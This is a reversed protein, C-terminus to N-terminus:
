IRFFSNRSKVKAPFNNLILSGRFHVANTGYYTSQLNIIPGKKLNYPLRKQKLFSWMFEPNTESISRFIEIM